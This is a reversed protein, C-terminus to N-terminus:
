SLLDDKGKPDHAFTPTKPVSFRGVSVTTKEEPKVESEQKDTTGKSEPEQKRKKRYRYLYSQYTRENLDFGQENLVKLIESHRVGAEIKQEIIPMLARLKGAKTKSELAQLAKQLDIKM